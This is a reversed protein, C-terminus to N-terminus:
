NPFFFNPSPVIDRIDLTSLLFDSRVNTLKEKNTILRM